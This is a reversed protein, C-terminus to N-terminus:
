IEDDLIGEPLDVKIIGAEIDVLKVVQKLAPILISKGEKEVNYVDNAGTKLVEKLIGLERGDSTFVELGVLDCIFYSGEPLKVADKRSIKIFCGKYSQATEINDIGKLKLFVLGKYYRVKEVQLEKLCGIVKNNGDCEIYVSSLEDYREPNNTLPIVKLEGKIGHTNVIEGIELYEIM